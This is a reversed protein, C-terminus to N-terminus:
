NKTNLASFVNVSSNIHTEEEEINVYVNQLEYIQLKKYKQAHVNDKNPNKSNPDMNVREDMFFNKKAHEIFKNYITNEKTVFEENDFLRKM